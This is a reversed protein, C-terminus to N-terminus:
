SFRAFFLFLNLSIRLRILSKFWFYCKEFFWFCYYFFVNLHIFAIKNISSLKISRTEKKKKALEVSLFYKYFSGRRIFLTFVTYLFSGRTYFSGGTDWFDMKGFISNNLKTLPKKNKLSFSWFHTSMMGCRNKWLLKLM